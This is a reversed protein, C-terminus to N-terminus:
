KALSMIFLTLAIAQDETMDWDPMAEHRVPLGEMFGDLLEDETYRAAVDRFPPAPPFPSAGTKELAHCTGCNTEALVRGEAATPDEAQAASAAILLSAVLLAAKSTMSM